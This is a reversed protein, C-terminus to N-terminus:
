LLQLQPITTPSSEPKAGFHSSVIRILTISM